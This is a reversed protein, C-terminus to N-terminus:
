VAIPMKIVSHCIYNILEFDEFELKEIDELTKIDKNIKIEPFDFAERKL